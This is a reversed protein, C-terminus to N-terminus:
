DVDREWRLTRLIALGSDLDTRTRGWLSVRLAAPYAQGGLYVTDAEAWVAVLQQVDVPAAYRALAVERGGITERWTTDQRLPEVATLLTTGVVERNGWEYVLALSRCRWEGTRADSGGTHFRCGAPVALTFPVDRYPGPRSPSPGPACAV